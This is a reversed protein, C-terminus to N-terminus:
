QNQKLWEEFCLLSWIRSSLDRMGDKNSEVMNRVYNKDLYNALMPNGSLLTDNVYEKLEEKFWVSLPVGFGIKPRNLITGPLFKEM